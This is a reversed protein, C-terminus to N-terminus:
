GFTGAVDNCTIQSTANSAWLALGFDSLQIMAFLFKKSNAVPLLGYNISFSFSQMM